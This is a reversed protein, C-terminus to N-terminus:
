TTDSLTEGVGSTRIARDAANSFERLAGCQAENEAKCRARGPRARQLSGNDSM